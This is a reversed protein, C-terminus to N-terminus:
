LFYLLGAFFILVSLILDWTGPYASTSIINVRATVDNAVSVFSGGMGVARSGVDINLYNAVTTGTKTLSSQGQLGVSGILLFCLILNMFRM